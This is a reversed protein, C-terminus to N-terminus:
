PCYFHFALIFYKTQKTESQDIFCQWRSTLKFLPNLSNKENGVCGWYNISLSRLCMGVYDTGTWQCYLQLGRRVCFHSVSYYTFPSPLGLLDLFGHCAFYRLAVWRGIKRTTNKKYDGLRPWILLLFSIWWFQFISSTILDSLKLCRHIPTKLCWWVRKLLGGISTVRWWVLFWTLYM